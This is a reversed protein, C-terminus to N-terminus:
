EYSFALAGNFEITTSAGIAQTNEFQLPTTSFTAGPTRQFTLHLLSSTGPGVEYDPEGGLQNMAVVLRGQQGGALAVTILADPMAPSTYSADPAFEVKTPDYVIDFAFGRFRTTGSSPGGLDVNVMSTTTSPAVGCRLTVTDAEPAGSDFCGLHVGPPPPSDDGGDCSLITGALVVGLAMWRWEFRRLASKAAM